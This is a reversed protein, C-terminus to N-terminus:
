VGMQINVQERLEELMIEDEKIFKIVNPLGQIKIDKGSEDTVIEGTEIDCFTFWAGSKQIIGYKMAVEVLDFIEDVGYDYM